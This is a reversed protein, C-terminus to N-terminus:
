LREILNLLVAVAAAVAVAVLLLTVVAGVAAVVGVTATLTLAALQGGGARALGGTVAALLATALVCGGTLALLLGPRGGLTSLEYFFGSRPRGGVLVTAAGAGVILNTLAVGLFAASLRPSLPVQVRGWPSTSAVFAGLADADGVQVLAKDRVM